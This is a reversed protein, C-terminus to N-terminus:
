RFILYDKFSEGIVANQVQESQNLIKNNHLMLWMDEYTKTKSFKDVIANTLLGGQDSGYSYGQDICGGIYWLRPEKGAGFLGEDAKKAAFNIPARFMTGSHCCDCILVVRGKAGCIVHWIEDDLMQADYLCLFQDKGTAEPYNLKTTSSQKQDGGHGSYFIIALDKQCVEVMKQVVVAKTAQQSVLLTTHNSYNQLIIHMREADIKAGPCNGAYRSNEMGICLVGTTNKDAQEFMHKNITKCGVAITMTAIAIFTTLFNKIM